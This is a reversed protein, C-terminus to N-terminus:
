SSLAKKLLAALKKEDADSFGTTVAFSTPWMTGDDLKAHEDFGFTAYRAKFKAAAQFFCVLKGDERSWAPMGYWTRPALNPATATVLANIREALAKDAPPMEAIKALLDAAGDVKKGSRRAKLDRAHEQMAAKEEATWTEAGESRKAPKKKTDTM